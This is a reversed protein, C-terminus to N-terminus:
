KVAALRPATELSGQQLLKVVDELSEDFVGETFTETILAMEAATVARGLRSRLKIKIEIPELPKIEPMALGPVNLATGKRPLYAPINFDTVPKFPDIRGGFPLRKEKTAKAVGEATTEGTILQDLQKASKQAPTHAHSSIAEGFVNANTAWGWQNKQLPEAVHFTDHGNENTVIQVTEPRWPNLCVLVKAKVNLNPVHSVDFEVGKFDITLKDSVVRTIPETRALERCLELAPAIRLENERIKLWAGYRTMGHRSHRASANFMHMWNSAYQNLQELSKIDYFRLPGELKHEIIDHAKEVAGTARANGPMHWRLDIQLSRCLNKFLGSTNACGADVYIMWPVGYFPKDERQQTANLFIQALNAGSEGGFVYEVYIAGTTHDVVAYRWVRDKEVKKFNEPKNKEFEKAEMVALGGKPLYYLVCLSADIQWVHNPHKSAMTVAPAPANLTDADLGYLKLARRIASLSLPKIEGTTEDKREAKIEGHIRLVNVTEELCSLVKGNARTNARMYAAIMEAEALTLSTEGSDARRKRTDRVTLKALKRYLTARSIELRDAEAQLYATKEGNALTRAQQAIEVLRENLAASM